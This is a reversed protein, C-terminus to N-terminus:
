ESSLAGFVVPIFIWRLLLELVDEKEKSVESAPLVVVVVNVDGVVGASVVDVLGAPEVIVVVLFRRWVEELSSLDGVVVPRIWRLLLELVAKEKLVDSAPLVVVM